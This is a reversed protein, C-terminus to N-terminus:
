RSSCFSCLFNPSKVAISSISTASSVPSNRESSPGEPQPFVVASRITAPNSAGVEPRTTMSPLSTVPMGELLRSMPMTKWAYESKGFMVASDFTSNPKRM